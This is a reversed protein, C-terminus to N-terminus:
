KISRKTSELVELLEDVFKSSENIWPSHGSHEFWVIEKHPADLVSMYDEVLSIPANIDHKGLFFYVPAELKAYDTRLDVDYLQPYVHNFTYVIGRLFNIKDMIGYESSFLDRFTNYGSNYIEPNATMYGSLYNLYEASKWTVDAGYYPPRGNEELKKIKESDGRRGAIEIAKDYDMNETELFDVMQGTGIMAFYREPAEFALFIGLASGWSEGVLYIKEQEFRSCLYETLAIGDEIYTDVTLDKGVAQYSKGSGPQDWVVVVFYKELEALDHRVAAMQTGGPGGALFLLVPNEESEGRISIWEKRGNLTVRELEAISGEVAKGNEDRIQSTHATIQSFLILGGTLVMVVTLFITNRKLRQSNQQVLTQRQRKIVWSIGLVIERILFVATCIILILFLIMEVM